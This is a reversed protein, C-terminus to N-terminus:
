DTGISKETLAGTSSRKSLFEVIKSNDKMHFISNDNSMRANAESEGFSTRGKVVVLNSWMKGATWENLMELSLQNDADLRPGPSLFIIM